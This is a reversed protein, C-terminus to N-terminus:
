RPSNPQNGTDPTNVELNGAANMVSRYEQSIAYHRLPTIVSNFIEAFHRKPSLLTHIDEM